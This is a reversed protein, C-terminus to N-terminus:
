GALLDKGAARQNHTHPQLRKRANRTRVHSEHKQSIPAAPAPAFSHGKRSHRVLFLPNCRSTRAQLWHGQLLFLDGPYRRATFVAEQSSTNKEGFHSMCCSGNFFNSLRFEFLPLSVELLFPFPLPFDRPCIPFALYSPVFLGRRGREGRCGEKERHLVKCIAIFVQSARGKM